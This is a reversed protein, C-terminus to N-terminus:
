SRVEQRITPGPNNLGLYLLYLGAAIGATLFVEVVIIIPFAWGGDWSLWEQGTMPGVLGALIFVIVGVVLLPRLWRRSMVSLDVGATRLLILLGAFVAGAQFAGGPGSSGSFLLWSGALLLVPAAIRAFYELIAPLAPQPGLAYSLSDDRGLSIVVVGALLLVASELLTDYGRFALLVGTVEHEIGTAPLEEKIGPRWTPLRQEARVFVSVAVVTLLAGVVVGTAASLLAHPRPTAARPEGRDNDSYVALWVLLASLLGTGLAAEAFAVDISGLRLWILSLIVGLGLFGTAQSRRSSSVVSIGVAIVAGAALAIDVGAVNPAAASAEVSLRTVDSM